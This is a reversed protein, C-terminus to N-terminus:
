GIEYFYAISANRPALAPSKLGVIPRRNSDVFIVFLPDYSSTHLGYAEGAQAKCSGRLIFGLPGTKLDVGKKKAM